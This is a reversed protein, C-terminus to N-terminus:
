QIVKESITKISNSLSNYILVLELKIGENNVVIAKIGVGIHFGTIKLEKQNSILNLIIFESKTLYERVKNEALTIDKKITTKHTRVAFFLMVFFVATYIIIDKTDM